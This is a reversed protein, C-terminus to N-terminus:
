SGVTSSFADTPGALAIPQAMVWLPRFGSTGFPAISEYDGVFYGSLTLPATKMDFARTTDLQVESWSTATTCASSCTDFWTDTLGPSAASANRLDYHSVGVTGDSAVAVSPTFAQAAGSHNITVPSSWSSGGDTSQSVVISAATQWAAYLTGNRNNVAVEPLIDGTRIQKGDLTLIQTDVINGVIVPASWTAGQDHSRIVAVQFTTSANHGIPGHENNILDFLDVLTGDPEVVIQNGITQNFEGPDFIETGQSWTAGNDFSRALM